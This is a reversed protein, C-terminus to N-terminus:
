NLLLNYNLLPVVSFGAVPVLYFFILYVAFILVYLVLFTYTRRLLFFSNVCHLINFFVISRFLRIFIESEFYLVVFFLSFLNLNLIFALEKDRCSLSHLRCLSKKEAMVVWAMLFLSGMQVLVNAISSKMSTDYYNFHRAISDPLPISYRVVVYSLIFALFLLFFKGLSVVRNVPMFVFVMFMLSSQHITAALLILLAYKARSFSKDDFLILMAQLFIGFALFNRMLVFDLSFFFIAYAVISAFPSITRKVIYRFVLLLTVFSVLIQFGQYPLGAQNAFINLFGYGVEGGWSSLTDRTTYYLEYGERDGNWYNWGYLVWMAM